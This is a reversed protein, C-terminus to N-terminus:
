RQELLLVGHSPVRLSTTSELALEKKTWLNLLSKGRFGALEKLRPDFSLASEGRNFFAIAKKGGSLDKVWIEMPGEAWVRRGPRGLADQDIAIVERNM